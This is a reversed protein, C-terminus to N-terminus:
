ERLFSSIVDLASYLTVFIMRLAALAAAFVSGASVCVPLERSKHDLVWILVGVM